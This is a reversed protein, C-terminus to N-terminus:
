GDPVAVVIITVCMTLAELLYSFMLNYNTITSLILGIQFNNMIVVKNFLYSIAVLFSAIYGINFRFRDQILNIYGCLFFYQGAVIIKLNNDKIAIMCIMSIAFWCLFIIRKTKSEKSEKIM